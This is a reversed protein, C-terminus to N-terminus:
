TDCGGSGGAGGLGVDALGDREGAPHIRIAIMVADDEDVQAVALAHRLDDEARLFM